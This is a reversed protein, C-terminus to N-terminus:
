STSQGRWTCKWVTRFKPSTRIYREGLMYTFLNPRGVLPCERRLLRSWAQLYLMERTEGVAQELELQRPWNVTVNGIEWLGFLPFSNVAGSCHDIKLLIWEIVLICEGRAWMHIRPRDWFLDYEEEKNSSFNLALNLSVSDLLDACFMAELGFAQPGLVEGSMLTLHQGFKCLVYYWSLTSLDSSAHTVQVAHDLQDIDERYICVYTSLIGTIRTTTPTNYLRTRTSEPLFEVAKLVSKVWLKPM